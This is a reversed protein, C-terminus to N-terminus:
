KQVCQVVIKREHAVVKAGIMGCMALRDNASHQKGAANLVDCTSGKSLFGQLVLCPVSTWSGASIVAHSPM